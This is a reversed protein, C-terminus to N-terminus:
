CLDGQRDVAELRALLERFSAVKLTDCGSAIQDQAWLRVLVRVKLECARAKTDQILLNPGEFTLSYSSLSNMLDLRFDRPLSSAVVTVHRMQYIRAPLAPITWSRDCLFVSHNHRYFLELCEHRIQRCTRSLPPEFFAATWANRRMTETDVYHVSQSRRVALDFVMERLEALLLLLRCKNPEATSNLPSDM